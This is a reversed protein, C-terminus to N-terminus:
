GGLVVVQSGIHELTPPIELVDIPHLGARQGAEQVGQASLIDLAIRDATETRAGARDVVERRRELVFTDAERRVATPQSFYACFDVEAIDPLPADDGQHWEFEEFDAADAIAAAVVGGPVLHAAACRLFAAQGAPAGLLQLTQMPVLILPFARGPLAFERADACVTEVPLGGARAELEVLLEADADLAVVSHGARGLPLTVRGTGAGVDLVAQGQPVYRAALTLWLELDEEYRGCELDHWIVTSM